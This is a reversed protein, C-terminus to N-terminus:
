KGSDRRPDLPPQNLVSINVAPVFICLSCPFVSLVRDGSTVRAPHGMPPCLASSLHALPSAQHCLPEPGVQRMSHAAGLGMPQKGAPLCTLLLQSRCSEDLTDPSPRALWIRASRQVYLTRALYSTQELGLTNQFARLTCIKSLYPNPPRRALGPSHHPHLFRGSHPPSQYSIGLVYTQRQLALSQLRLASAFSEKGCFRRLHPRPM